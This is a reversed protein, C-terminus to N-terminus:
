TAGLFDGRGVGDGVAGRIGCGVGDVSMGIEGVRLGVDLPGGKDVAEQSEGFLAVGDANPRVAVRSVGEGGFFNKSEVGGIFFKRLLPTEFFDGLAIGGGNDEVLGGSLIM